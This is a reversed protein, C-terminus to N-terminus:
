SEFGNRFFLDAEREFAGADCLAVGDSNGDIPRPTGRADTTVCQPTFAGDVAPSSIAYRLVPMADFLNITGSVASSAVQTASPVIVACTADTTLNGLGVIAPTSARCGPRASFGFVSNHLANISGTLLMLHATPNDGSIGATNEQFSLHAGNLATRVLYIAAGSNRTENGLVTLNVLSTINTFPSTQDNIFIAGGDDARNSGFYSERIVNTCTDCLGVVAGGRHPQGGPSALAKNQEFRSDRIELGGYAYIAGGFGGGSSQTQNNFFYSTRVTLDGAYIAGGSAQNGDISIAANDIFDSRDITVNGRNWYIAGGRAFGTKRAVCSSFQINDVILLQTGSNATSAICGGGDGSEALGTQLRFNKLTLREVNVGATMLRFSNAVDFVTVTINPLDVELTPKNFAPLPSELFITVNGLFNASRRIRHSTGATANANVIAQRLSGGGSDADNTVFFDAALSASSLALLKFIILAEILKRM